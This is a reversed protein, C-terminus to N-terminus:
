TRRLVRLPSQFLVRRTGLYGAAGTLLAGAPPLLLWLLPHWAPELALTKVHLLAIVIESGLAALVGAMCGLGLFEALIAHRLQSSRAGLARLLAGEHLREDLTTAIAAFLVVMGAALVFLLVYEVALVLQGMIRQVQRLIPDLELLTTAPFSRVLASVTEQRQPPLHFSTMWTAPFAELVGPPFLLYFNPRFSDWQVQRLNLITAEVPEGGIVLGLRDGPELELARALSAEVSVLPHGSDSRTFWRGAVLRNAPPLADSWSLNLERHLANHNRAGQPVAELAPRGNVGALRGRVMPYLKSAEIGHDRFFDRLPEVQEPLVNILFHNPADPPLRARWSELLDTRVLLLTAMAMFVLGFALLQALTAARRRWLSDIGLRWGSGLLTGFSRAAALAGLSLLGLPALMALSGALLTLITQPDGSSRWMSLSVTALALAYVLWASGPLPELDRRLVRLPPVRRLGLVPPLAFGALLVLGALLGTFFPQLPHPLPGPPLLGALLWLLGWHAVWGLLTGLLSGALGLLLLQLLHLGLLRGGTMGMCRMLASSDYHRRSYRHAAMAIAVGALLLAVTTALGLFREARELAAGVTRRGQHVDILQQTSALRPQLWSRLAAVQGPKGAFLYHHSLRSGPQIVGTAAVDELRILVRPALGLLDMHFGPDFTLVRSALFRKDGIELHEEPQLKLRSFLRADLWAEGPEPLTDTHREEGFPRGAVRLGGRLPYPPQVAKVTALRFSEGAVVMSAFELARTQRLGLERAKELWAPEVESPSVLILDAGLFGASQQQMGQGIRSTFFDIATSASVAVVLAALLIRLEGARWERLLLTLAHRPLSV